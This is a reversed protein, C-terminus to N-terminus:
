LVFDSCTDLTDFFRLVPPFFFLVLRVQQLDGPGPTLTAETRYTSGGTPLSMSSSPALSDLQLSPM